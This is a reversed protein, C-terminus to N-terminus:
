EVLHTLELRLLIRFNLNPFLLVEHRLGNLCNSIVLQNKDGSPKWVGLSYCGSLCNFEESPREKQDRLVCLLRDAFTVDIRVGAFGEGGRVDSCVSLKSVRHVQAAVHCLGLGSESFQQFHCREKQKHPTNLQLERM